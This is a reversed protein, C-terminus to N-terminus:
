ALSLSAITTTVRALTEALALFFALSAITTTVRALTWALALSSAAGGPAWRRIHHDHHDVSRLRRTTVSALTEALALSFALSAIITTVRALTCALALSFAAGGPAWRRIHHDVSRLRRGHLTIAVIIDVTETIVVKRLRIM